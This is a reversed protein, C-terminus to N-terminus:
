NRKTQVKADRVIMVKPLIVFDLNSGDIVQIQYTNNECVPPWNDEYEKFDMVVPVVFLSDYKYCDINRRM